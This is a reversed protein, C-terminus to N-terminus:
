ISTTQAFRFYLDRFSIDGLNKLFDFGRDHQMDLDLILICNDSNKVRLHNIAIQGDDFAFINHYGITPLQQSLLRLQFPDDDVIVIVIESNMNMDNVVRHSMM